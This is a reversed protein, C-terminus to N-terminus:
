QCLSNLPDLEGDYAHICKWGGPGAVAPKLGPSSLQTTGIYVMDVLAPHGVRVASDFTSSLNSHDIRALGQAVHVASESQSDVTSNLLTLEVHSEIGPGNLSRITSGRIALAGQSMAGLQDVDIETNWITVDMSNASMVGFESNRIRSDEIRLPMEFVEVAGGAGDITVHNLTISGSPGEAHIAYGGANPPGWITVASLTMHGQHNKIPPFPSIPFDRELTLSRIEVEEEASGSGYFVLQGMDQLRIRTAAEGAGELHVHPLLQVPMDVVYSGPMLRILCPNEIQGPLTSGGLDCWSSVDLLADQLSTYIGPGIVPSGDRYGLTVVALNVM